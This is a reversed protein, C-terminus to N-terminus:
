EADPGPMLIWAAGYALWMPGPLLAGALCGARVLVPSVGWEAALGGCVGGLIRRRSRHPWSQRWSATRASPTQALPSESM